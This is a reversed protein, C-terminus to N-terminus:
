EGHLVGGLQCIYNNSMIRGVPQPLLAYSTSYNSSSVEGGAYGLSYQITVLLHSIDYSLVNNQNRDVINVVDVDQFYPIALAFNRDSTVLSNAEPLISGNSDHLPAGLIGIPPSYNYDYLLNGDSSKLQISYNADDSQPIEGAIGPVLSAALVTMQGDKQMISLVFTYFDKILPSTPPYFTIDALLENENVQGFEHRPNFHSGMLTNTDYARYWSDFYCPSFCGTGPISSWKSCVPSETCNALTGASVNTTNGTWYEDWLGGFSHGFEHSFVRQLEDINDAIGFCGATGSGNCDPNSLNVDVPFNCTGAFECGLLVYNMHTGNSTINRLFDVEPPLSYSGFRPTLSLLSFENGFPCVEKARGNVIANNFHGSGDLQYANYEDVMWVNFKTKNSKFPEFSFLGNQDSSYNIVYNIAYEFQNKDEFGSGIFVLDIKQSPEGNNIVQRCLTNDSFRPSYYRFNDLAVVSYTSTVYISGSQNPIIFNIDNQVPLSSLLGGYIQTDPSGDSPDFYIRFTCNAPNFHNCSKHIVDFFMRGGNMTYSSRLSDSTTTSDGMAVFFRGDDVYMHNPIKERVFKVVGSAVTWGSPPTQTYGLTGGMTYVGGYTDPIVGEFSGSLIATHRNVHVTNQGYLDRNSVGDCSVYYSVDRSDGSTIDLSINGTRYIENGVYSTSHSLNDTENFVTCTAGSPYNVDITFSEGAEIHDVFPSSDNDVLLPYRQFRFNDLAFNVLTFTGGSRFAALSFRGDVNPFNVDYTQKPSANTLVLVTFSDAKNADVPNYNLRLQSTSNWFSSNGIGNLDFLIRGARFIDPHSLVTFNNSTTSTTGCVFINGDTPYSGANRDFYRIHTGGVSEGDVWTSVTECFPKNSVLSGCSEASATSCSEFSGNTILPYPQAFASSSFIFIFLFFLWYGKM